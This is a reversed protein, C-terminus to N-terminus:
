TRSREELLAAGIVALLLLGAPNMSLEQATRYVRWTHISYSGADILLVFACFVMTCSLQLTRRLLTRSERCMSGMYRLLKCIRM